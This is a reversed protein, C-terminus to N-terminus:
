FEDESSWIEEVPEEEEQVSGEENEEEEEEQEETENEDEEEEKASEEEEEEEEEILELDTELTEPLHKFCFNGKKILANCAKGGKNYVFSCFSYNLSETRFVEVLEDPVLIGKAKLFDVFQSLYQQNLKTLLM